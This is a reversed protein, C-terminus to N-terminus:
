GPGDARPAPRARTRALWSMPVVTPYFPILYFASLLSSPADGISAGVVIIVVNNIWALSAAGAARDPGDRRAFIVAGATATLLILLTSLLLSHLMEEPRARLYPGYRGFTGLNVLIFPVLSLPFSIRDLARIFGPVIRRSLSVAALPAFVIFALFMALEWLDFNLQRGALLRVMLPLTVPLLLNTVTAMVLVFAANGGVLSCLFPATVGTSTGTLMLAALAYEPAIMRALPYALAPLLILKIGGLLALRAPFKKLNEWVDRPYIKLFSLFLLAMLYWKLHAALPATFEPWALGAMLSGLTIAVLTLDKARFM